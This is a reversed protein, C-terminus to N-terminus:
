LRQYTGGSVAKKLTGYRLDKGGHYTLDHELPNIAECQVHVAADGQWSAIPNNFPTTIHGRSLAEQRAVHRESRNMMHLTTKAFSIQGRRMSDSDCRSKIESPTPVENRGRNYIYDDAGPSKQLARTKPLGQPDEAKKRFEVILDDRGAVKAPASAVKPTPAAVPSTNAFATKTVTQATDSETSSYRALAVQNSIVTIRRLM